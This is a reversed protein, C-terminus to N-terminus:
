HTLFSLHFLFLFECADLAYYTGINSEPIADNYVLVWFHLVISSATLVVCDLAILAILIARFDRKKKMEYLDYMILFCALVTVAISLAVISQFDSDDSLAAFFLAAVIILELIAGKLEWIDRRTPKECGLSASPKVASEM